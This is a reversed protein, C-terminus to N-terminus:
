PQNQYGASASRTCRAQTCQRRHSWSAHARLFLPGAESSCAHGSQTLENDLRFSAFRERTGARHHRRADCLADGGHTPILHPVHFNHPGKPPHAGCLAISSMCSAVGLLKWAVEPHSAREQLRRRTRRLLRHLPASTSMLGLAAVRFCSGCGPRFRGNHPPRALCSVEPRRKCLPLRACRAPKSQNKFSARVFDGQNSMASCTPGGPAPIGVCGHDFGPWCQTGNRDVQLPKSWVFLKRVVANLASAFMHVSGLCSSQIVLLNPWRLGKWTRQRSM